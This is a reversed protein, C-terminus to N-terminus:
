SQVLSAIGRQAKWDAVWSRVPRDGDLVDGTIATRQRFLPTTEKPM